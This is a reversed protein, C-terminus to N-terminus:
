IALGVLFVIKTLKIWYKSNSLSKSAKKSVFYIIYFICYSQLFLYLMSFEQKFLSSNLVMFCNDIFLGLFIHYFKSKCFDLIFM